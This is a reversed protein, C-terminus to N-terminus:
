NNPQKLRDGGVRPSAPCSIRPKGDETSGAGPYDGLWTKAEEYSIFPGIIDPDGPCDTPVLLCWPSRELADEVPDFDPDDAM